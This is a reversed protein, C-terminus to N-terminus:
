ARICDREENGVKCIIDGSAGLSKPAVSSGEPWEVYIGDPQAEGGTGGVEARESGLGNQVHLSVGHRDGQGPSDGLRQGTGSDWNLM